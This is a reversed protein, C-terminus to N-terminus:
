APKVYIGLVPRPYPRASTFDSVFGKETRLEVHGADNGGYVIVAGVPAAYPNRTRLKKFGYNKALEAGAQRAWITVPRREVVNAALLADKVYKWCRWTMRPQARQQAIEAAHIMRPDYRLSASKPGFIRQEAPTLVRATRRDILSDEASLTSAATLLVALSLLLYKMPNPCLFASALRVNRQTLYADVTGWRLMRAYRKEVLALVAFRDFDRGM